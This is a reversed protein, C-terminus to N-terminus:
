GLFIGRFSMTETARLASITPLHCAECASLQRTVFSSGAKNWQRHLDFVGNACAMYGSESAKEAARFACVSNSLAIMLHFSSCELEVMRVCTLKEMECASLL